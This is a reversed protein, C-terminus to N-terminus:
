AQGVGRTVCFFALGAKVDECLSELREGDQASDWGQHGEVLEKDKEEGAGVLGNRVKNDWETKRKNMSGLTRPDSCGSYLILATSPPLAATFAKLQMDFSDFADLVEQSDPSANVLDSSGSNSDAPNSASSASLSISSPSSYPNTWGLQRALYHVRGFVFDHTKLLDAVNELVKDDDCDVSTTASGAFGGVDAGVFATALKMGGNTVAAAAGTGVNRLRAFISTRAEPVKGFGLGQEVKMKVLGVCARADEEPRHGVVPVQVTETETVTTEQGDDGTVTRTTARTTSVTTGVAQITRGLWRQSLWKLSPKSSPRQLNHYIVSTDICRAHSLRLAQLDNAIHHGILIADSNSPSMFSLLRSQIQSLTTTVPALLEPTMGSWLVGTASSAPEPKDDMLVGETWFDVVAIRALAKDSIGSGNKRRVNVMECDLALVVPRDDVSMSSSTSPAPAQVWGSTAVSPSRSLGWGNAIRHLSPSRKSSELLSSSSSPHETDLLAELGEQALESPTLLLSELTTSQEGFLSSDAKSNDKKNIRSPGMLFSAVPDYIKGGEGEARTPLGHSFLKSLAPLKNEPASHAFVLPFAPAAGSTTAPTAASSPTSSPKANAVIESASPGAFLSRPHLKQNHNRSSSASAPSAFKPPPAMGIVDPTIGPVCLIAVRKAAQKSPLGLFKPKDQAPTHEILSLAVQRLDTISVPLPRARLESSNFAFVNSEKSAKEKKKKKAAPPTTVSSATGDNSAPNDVLAAQSAATSPSTSSAHSVDDFKRKRNESTSPAM